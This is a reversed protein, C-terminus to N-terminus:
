FSYGFAEIDQAFAEAVLNRTTETYYDRYPGRETGNMHPIPMAIGIRHCVRSFDDGLTEYRGIFDLCLEGTEDLLYDTMPRIYFKDRSQLAVWEDFSSARSYLSVIEPHNDRFEKSEAIRRKHYFYTSVAVDWPNRVFSFKFYTNWQEPTVIRRLTAAPLHHLWMDDFKYATKDDCTARGKLRLKIGSSRMASAISSGACKPIHVYIFKKDDSVPMHKEALM